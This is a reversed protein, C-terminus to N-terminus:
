EKLIVFAKITGKIFYSAKFDHINIAWLHIAHIIIM